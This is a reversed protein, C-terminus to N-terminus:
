FVVWKRSDHGWADIVQLLKVFIRLWALTHCFNQIAVLYTTALVRSISPFILIHVLCVRLWRQIKKKKNPGKIKTENRTCMDVIVIYTFGLVLWERLKYDILMMMWNVYVMDVCLSVEEVDDTVDYQTICL